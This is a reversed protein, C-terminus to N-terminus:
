AQHTNGKGERPLLPPAGTDQRVEDRIGNQSEDPHPDQTSCQLFSGHSLIEAKYSAVYGGPSAVCITIGLALM